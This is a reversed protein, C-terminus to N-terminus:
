AQAVPLPQLLFQHPNDRTIKDFHRTMLKKTLNYLEAEKKEQETMFFDTGFLVREGLERGNKDKTDMLIEIEQLIETKDLANLTYSIDTYLNPYQVMMNKILTFWNYGDTRQLEDMKGKRHALIETEGGMHAMCIKLNPFTELVPVFNQPHGFLDCAYDNEGIPSNNAWGKQKFRAVRDMIEKWAAEANARREAQSPDPMLMNDYTDVLNAVFNGVYQSGVRTCHTMVPLQNKEAYAYLDYLRKDFPYFGLAPYLKIGAFYPYVVKNHEFGREFFPKAFNLLDNGSLHRPDIGLFPFFNEPYYRKIDKVEELQTVYNKQRLSPQSDMYDMNMTLGVIRVSSDYKRGAELALNFVDYQTRETGIELFSLYKKIEKTKKEDKFIRALLRPMFLIVTRGIKSDLFKKIWHARKRVFKVPLIRLFRDPACLSNFVHAHVNTFPKQAMIAQTKHNPIPVPKPNPEPV